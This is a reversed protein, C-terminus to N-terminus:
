LGLRICIRNHFAVDKVYEQYQERSMRDGEDVKRRRFHKGRRLKRQAVKANKAKVVEETYDVM